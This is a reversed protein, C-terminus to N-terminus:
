GNCFPTYVVVVVIIKYILIFNWQFFFEMMRFSVYSFSGDQSNESTRESDKASMKKKM